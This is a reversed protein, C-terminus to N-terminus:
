RLLARVEDAEAAALAAAAIERCQKLSVARIARKV